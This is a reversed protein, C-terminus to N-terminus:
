ERVADVADLDSPLELLEFRVRGDRCPELGSVDGACEPEDRWFASLADSEDWEVRLCPESEEREGVSLSMVGVVEDEGAVSVWECSVDFASAPLAGQLVGSEWGDGHARCSVEEAGVEGLCACGFIGALGDHSMGLDGGRGSVRMPRRFGEGREGVLGPLRDTDAILLLRSRFTGTQLFVVLIPQMYTVCM